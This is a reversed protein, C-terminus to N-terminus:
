VPSRQTTVLAKPTGMVRATAALLATGPRKVGWGIRSRRHMSPPTLPLPVWRSRSAPHSRTTTRERVSPASMPGPIIVTAGPAMPLLDLNEAIGAM